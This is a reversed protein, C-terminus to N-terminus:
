LDRDKHAHRLIGEMVKTLYMRCKRFKLVFFGCTKKAQPTHQESTPASIVFLSVMKHFLYGQEAFM